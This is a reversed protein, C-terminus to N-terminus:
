GGAAIPQTAPAFYTGQQQALPHQAPEQQQVSRFVFDNPSSNAAVTSNARRGAEADERSLGAEKPNLNLSLEAAPRNSPGVVAPGNSAATKDKQMVETEALRGRDVSLIQDSLDNQQDLRGLGANFTRRYADGGRDYQVKAFLN